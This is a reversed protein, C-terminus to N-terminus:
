QRLEAGIKDAFEGIVGDIEQDVQQNTLTGEDWRYELALTVSKKGASIPKGRYTTVYEASALLPQDIGELVVQIQGWTVADDVVLSLDRCIPPYKPLVSAKRTLSAKDLLVNYRIVACTIRNELGYYKQVDPSIVGILGGSQGGISVEASTGEVFGEQASIAVELQQGPCVREVVEEIVGRVDRLEGTTVLAIEVYEDPLTGTAPKYVSAFEFLNVETNGQDQNSKCARLLSPLLTPRLANESKRVSSDVTVPQQIGFQKCEAADVFSFTIAESYGSSALISIIKRRLREDRGIAVVPHTVESGPVIKDFGNLRAIEEILDAERTLDRRFTPITCVIRGEEIRPSLGLRALIQEQDQCSIGIGLLKETREPRLALEHPAYDVDCIDVVGEAVRGGALECILSCARLSATDVGIPDVGREFRYNSESALQLKRSTRRINLQDFIASEVLINTTQDSVETDLGGMIGAIAVPKEADAIVLMQDDLECVTEDISVLKEGEKARRVVIRGECLKDYDFCHLPQSYEMLVFNSIDVVNNISRMGISELYEVMWQPSPGVTVGRIVRASYRPCLDQDSVEVSTLQDVRGSAPINGIEPQRFDNGTIAALERAVGLHGLMDPRNTTIELDLVIDNEKEEIGECCFGTMEMLEGLEAAPMKMDVYDSLWNMSVNM